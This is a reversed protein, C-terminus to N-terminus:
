GNYEISIYSTVKAKRPDTFTEGNLGTPMYCSLSSFSVKEEIKKLQNLNNYIYNNFRLPEVSETVQCGKNYTIKQIDYNNLKIQRILSPDNCGNDSNEKTCAIFSVFCLFLAFKKM